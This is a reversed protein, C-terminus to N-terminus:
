SPECQVVVILPKPWPRDATEDWVEYRLEIKLDEGQHGEYNLVLRREGIDLHPALASFAEVLQRLGPWLPLREDLSVDEWIQWDRVPSIPGLM